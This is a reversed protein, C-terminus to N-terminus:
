PLTLASVKRRLIGDFTLEFARAELWATIRERDPHSPRVVNYLYNLGRRGAEEELRDLVFTGVGRGQHAPDVALLMEADGWVTDIWAYAATAADDDVRWWEGALPAGTEVHGFDFIGAPAGGVIRTKDSDWLAPHERIWELSM